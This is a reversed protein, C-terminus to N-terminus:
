GTRLTVHIVQVEDAAARCPRWGTFARTLSLVSVRVTKVFWHSSSFRRSPRKKAGRTPRRPQEHLHQRARPASGCILVSEAHRREMDGGADAPNFADGVLQDGFSVRSATRM